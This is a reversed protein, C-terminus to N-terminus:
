THAVRALVARAEWGQGFELAVYAGPLLVDADAARREALGDLEVDDAAASPLSCLPLLLLPM